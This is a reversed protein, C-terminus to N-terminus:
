KGSEYLIYPDNGCSYSGIKWDLSLWYGESTGGSIYGVSLNPNIKRIINVTETWATSSGIYVEAWAHGGENCSGGLIRTRGGIAEICSALLIAFDDCDGALGVALTRDAPSYYDRGVFLPDNVYKWDGAIYSHIAIIQKIGETGPSADSGGRYYTGPNSSALKVALDRVCPIDRRVAEKFTDVREDSLAGSCVAAEGAKERLAAIEELYKRNQKKVEEFFYAEDELSQIRKNLDDILRSKEKSSLTDDDLLSEIYNEVEEEFEVYSPNLLATLRDLEGKYIVADEKTDRSLGGATVIGLVIILSWLSIRRSNIITQAVMWRCLLLLGFGAFVNLLSSSFFDGIIGGIIDLPLILLFIGTCLTLYFYFGKYGRVSLLRILSLGTGVLLPVWFGINLINEYFDLIISIKLLALIVSIIMVTGAVGSIRSVTRL